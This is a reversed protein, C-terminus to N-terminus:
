FSLEAGLSLSLSVMGLQYVEGLGALVWRPRKTEVSLNANAALAFWRAVHVETTVGAGLAFGLTNVEAPKVGLGGGRASIREVAPVVCPGFEIINAQWTRCAWLEFMLRHVDAQVDQLQSSSFVTQELVNRGVVLVRWPASSWGVGLGFGVAPRPLPGFDVTGLPRALIRWPRREEPKENADSGGTGADRKE